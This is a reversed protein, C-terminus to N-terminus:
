PNSDKEIDAGCIVLVINIHFLVLMYSQKKQKTAKKQQIYEIM